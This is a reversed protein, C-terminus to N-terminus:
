VIKRGIEEIGTRGWGGCIPKTKCASLRLNSAHLKFDSPAVGPKEPEASSVECKVCEGMGFQSQKRQPVTKWDRTYGDICVLSIVRIAGQLNAKNQVLPWGPSDLAKCNGVADITEGSASRPTGPVGVRRHGSLALSGVRLPPIMLGYPPSHGGDARGALNAKNRRAPLSGVVKMVGKRCFLECPEQEAPIPKTKCAPLTFDSTHLKFDSCAQDQGRRGSVQSKLSSVGRLNAKNQATPQGHKPCSRPSSSCSANPANPIGASLLRIRGCAFVGSTDVLRYVCQDRGFVLNHDRHRSDLNRMQSVM